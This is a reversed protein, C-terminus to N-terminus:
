TSRAETGLRDYRIERAVTGALVENCDGEDIVIRRQPFEQRLAHLQQVRWPEQEIFRYSM